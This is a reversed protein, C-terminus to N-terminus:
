RKVPDDDVPAKAHQEASASEAADAQRDRQAEALSRLSRLLYPSVYGRKIPRAQTM